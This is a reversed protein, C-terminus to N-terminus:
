EDTLALLITRGFFEALMYVGEYSKWEDESCNKKFIKGFMTFVMGAQHVLVFRVQEWSPSYIILSNENKPSDNLLM